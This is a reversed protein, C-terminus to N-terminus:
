PIIARLGKELTWFESIISNTSTIFSKEIPSSSLAGEEVLACCKCPFWSNGALCVNSSEYKIEPRKLVHVQDRGDM